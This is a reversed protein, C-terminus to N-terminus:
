AYLGDSFLFKDYKLSYLIQLLYLMQNLRFRGLTTTVFTVDNREKENNFYKRNSDQAFLLKAVSLAEYKAEYQPSTLKEILEQRTPKDVKVM